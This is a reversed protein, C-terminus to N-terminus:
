SGVDVCLYKANIDTKCNVPHSDPDGPDKACCKMTLGKVGLTFLLQQSSSSSSYSSTSSYSYSSSSSAYSSSYSSSEFSSSASSYSSSARSRASTVLTCATSCQTPDSYADDNEDC